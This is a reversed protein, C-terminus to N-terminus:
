VFYDTCQLRQYYDGALYRPPLSPVSTSVFNDYEVLLLLPHLQWWGKVSEKTGLNRSGGYIM